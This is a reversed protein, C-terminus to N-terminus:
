CSSNYRPRRILPHQRFFFDCFKYFFLLQKLKVYLNSQCGGVKLDRNTNVAAFAEDPIYRKYM